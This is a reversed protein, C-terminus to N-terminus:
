VLKSPPPQQWQYMPPFPAPFVGPVPMFMNPRSMPMQMPMPM